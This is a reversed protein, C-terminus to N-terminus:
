RRYFAAPLCGRRETYTQANNTDCTVRVAVDGVETPKGTVVVPQRSYMFAVADPYGLMGVFPTNFTM